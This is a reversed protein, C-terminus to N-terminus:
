RILTEGTSGSAIRLVDSADFLPLDGPISYKLRAAATAWHLSGLLDKGDIWASLFGASFADGGGLRGVPEVPEIRQIVCGAKDGAMAGYSGLTMVTPKGDRLELLQDMVAEHSLSKDLQWLNQADRIPLFALDASTFLAQCYLHADHANCLLARHNVDFSIKWGAQKALSVATEIANRTSEGLWLSIGTIHLWKSQGTRFLSAPLDSPKMKSFASNARDYIVQSQRPPTGTELFYLGVRDENTWVVHQTDVNHSAITRVIQRGLANDTMRSIWAVRKGLRSLGVATNSESGGVHVQMEDAQEFRQFGHPTLRIMTEGLTVVDYPRHLFESVTSGQM